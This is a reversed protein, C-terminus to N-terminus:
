KLPRAHTLQCPLLPLFPPLLRFPSHCCPWPINISPLWWHVSGIFVTVGGLFAGGLPLRGRVSLVSRIRRRYLTAIAGAQFSVGLLCFPSSGRGRGERILWPAYGRFGRSTAPQGASLTRCGIELVLTLSAWRTTSFRPGGRSSVPSTWPLTSVTSLFGGVLPM